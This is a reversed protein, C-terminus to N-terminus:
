KKKIQKLIFNQKVYEVVHKYHEQLKILKQIKLFINFPM